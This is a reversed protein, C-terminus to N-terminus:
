FKSNMTFGIILRFKLAVRDAVSITGSFEVSNKVIAALLLTEPGITVLCEQQKVAAKLLLGHVTLKFDGLMRLYAKSEEVNGVIAVLVSMAAMITAAVCDPVCKANAEYRRCNRIVDKIAVLKACAKNRTSMQSGQIKNMSSAVRTLLISSLLILFDESPQVRDSELTGPEANDNTITITPLIPLTTTIASAKAREDSSFERHDLFILTPLYSAVSVSCFLFAITEPLEDTPIVPTYSVNPYFILNRHIRTFEYVSKGIRQDSNSYRTRL